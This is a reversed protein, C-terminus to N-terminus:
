KKECNEIEMRKRVAARKKGAAIRDRAEKVFETFRLALEHIRASQRREIAETPILETGVGIGSAGSVIFNAATQQNVGGAAILRIEPLALKIAKIYADGGVQACPFVKVFDAGATWATEIETPTLAGPLVAVKEKGAFEIISPNFAPATLFAAGAGLCARATEVNLVSGAGV